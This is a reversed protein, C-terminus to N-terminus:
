YPVPVVGYPPAYYPRPAVVAPPAYVVPRPAYVRHPPYYPRYVIPAPRYYPRYYPTYHPRYYPRYPAGYYVPQGATVAIGPAGISVSWGVNGGASAATSFLAAAGVLATGVAAVLMRTRKM